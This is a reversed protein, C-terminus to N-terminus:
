CIIATTCSPERPGSRGTSCLLHPLEQWCSCTQGFGDAGEHDDEVFQLQLVEARFLSSGSFLLFCISLTRWHFSLAKYLRECVCVCVCVVLVWWHSVESQGEEHGFWIICTHGQLQMIDCFQMLKDAAISESNHHCSQSILGKYIQLLILKM